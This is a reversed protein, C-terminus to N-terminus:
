YEITRLKSDLIDDPSSNREINQTEVQSDINVNFDYYLWHERGTPQTSIVFSFSNLIWPQIDCLQMM